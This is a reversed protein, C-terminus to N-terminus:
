LQLKKAMEEIQEPDFEPIWSRSLERAGLTRYLGRLIQVEIWYWEGPVRRDELPIPGPAPDTIDLAVLSSDMVMEPQAAPLCVPGQGYFPM